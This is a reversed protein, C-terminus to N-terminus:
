EGVGSEERTGHYREEGIAFSGSLKRGAAVHASYFGEFSM